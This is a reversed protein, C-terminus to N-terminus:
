PVGFGLACPKICETILLNIVAINGFQVRIEPCIGLNFCGALFWRHGHPHIRLCVSVIMTWARTSVSVMWQSASSQM